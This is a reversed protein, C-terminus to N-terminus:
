MGAVRVIKRDTLLQVGPMDDKDSMHLYCNEHRKSFSRPVQFAHKEENMNKKHTHNSHEKELQVRSQKLHSSVNEM